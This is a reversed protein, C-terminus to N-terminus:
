PPTGRALPSSGSSAVARRRMLSHEGRSRPHVPMAWRAAVRSPTNGARAPIFRSGEVPALDPRPTGRALPSSGGFQHRAGYPRNHEGRSRPHVATRTTLGSGVMTNGARAPIFRLPAPADPRRRRTGRALPSSGTDPKNLIAADGHEGRSRPHVPRRRQATRQSRTNGARAPIFRRAPRDPDTRGVEPTLSLAAIRRDLRAIEADTLNATKAVGVLGTEIDAYARVASAAGRRLGELGGGVLVLSSLATTAHSSLRKLTDGVSDLGKRASRTAPGTRDEGRIVVRTLLETAM